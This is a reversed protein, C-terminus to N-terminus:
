IQKRNRKFMFVLILALAAASTGNVISMDASITWSTSDSPLSICQRMETPAGTASSLRAVGPGCGGDIESSGAITSWGTLDVDITGNSVLETQALVMVASSFFVIVALILFTKAKKM